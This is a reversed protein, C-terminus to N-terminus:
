LGLLAKRLGEVDLRIRSPAISASDMGSPERVLRDGERTLVPEDEVSGEDVGQFDRHDWDGRKPKQEIGFCSRKGELIDELYVM